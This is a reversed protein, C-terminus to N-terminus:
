LCTFLMRFLARCESLHKPGKRFGCYQGQQLDPQLGSHTGSPNVPTGLRFCALLGQALLLTRQPCRATAPPTPLVSSAPRQSGAQKRPPVYGPTCLAWSWLATPFQRGPCSHDLSTVASCPSISHPSGVETALAPIRPTWPSRAVSMVPVSGPSAAQQPDGRDPHGALASHWQINGCGYPQCVLCCALPFCFAPCPM